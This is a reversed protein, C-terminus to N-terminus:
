VNYSRKVVLFDVNWKLRCNSGEIDVLKHGSFCWIPMAATDRVERKQRLTVGGDTSERTKGIGREATVMTCIQNWETKTLQRQKM